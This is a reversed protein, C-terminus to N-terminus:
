QRRRHSCQSVNLTATRGQNSIEFSRLMTVAVLGAQRASNYEIYATRDKLSIIPPIKSYVDFHYHLDEVKVWEPVKDIKLNSLSYDQDNLITSQIKGQSFVIQSGLKILPEIKEQEEIFGDPWSDMFNKMAKADDLNFNKNWQPIKPSRYITRHLPQGDPQLNLLVNAFEVPALWVYCFGSYYRKKDPGQETVYNLRYYGKVQLKESLTEVIKDLLDCINQRTKRESTKLYLLQRENVNSLYRNLDKGTGYISSETAQSTTSAPNPENSITTMDATMM